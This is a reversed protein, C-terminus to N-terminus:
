IQFNACFNDRFISHWIQCQSGPIESHGKGEDELFRSDMGCKTLLGLGAFGLNVGDSLNM